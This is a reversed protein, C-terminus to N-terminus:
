AGGPRGLYRAGAKRWTQAGVACGERSAYAPLAGGGEFLLMSQKYYYRSNSRLLISQSITTINIAQLVISQNRRAGSTNMPWECDKAMCQGHM